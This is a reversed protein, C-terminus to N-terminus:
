RLFEGCADNYDHELFPNSESERWSNAVHQHNSNNLYDAPKGSCLCVQTTMKIAHYWGPEVSLQEVFPIGALKNESDPNVQTSFM